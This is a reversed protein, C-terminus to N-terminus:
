HLTDGLAVTLLVAGSLDVVTLKWGRRDEAPFERKLEDVDAAILEGAQDLSDVEVGEPDLIVDNGDYLHFYLRMLDDPYPHAVTSAWVMFLSSAYPTLTDDSRRLTSRFARRFATDHM